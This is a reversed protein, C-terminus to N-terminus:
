HKNKKIYVWPYPNKNGLLRNSLTHPTHLLRHNFPQLENLCHHFHFDAMEPFGLSSYYAATRIEERRIDSPKYLPSDLLHIEGDPRLHRLLTHITKRLNRFYQISAALVIVDFLTEGGLGSDIDGRIFSLNPYYCFVRAAQQLETFNIDLATVKTNPIEALHHSLWGNGCGVDLIDLPGSKAKIRRVLRTMSSKRLQWERYHPHDPAIDPLRDLEDDTYLRSEMCCITIYSKEFWRDWITTNGPVHINTLISSDRLLM